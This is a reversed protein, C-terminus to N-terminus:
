TFNARKRTRSFRSDPSWTGGRPPYGTPNSNMQQVSRIGPNQPQGSLAATLALLCLTIPLLSLRAKLM